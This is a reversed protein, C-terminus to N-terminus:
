DLELGGLHHIHCRHRDVSIRSISFAGHGWWRAWTGPESRPLHMLLCPGDAYIAVCSVLPQDFLVFVPRVQLFSHSCHRNPLDARSTVDARSPPFTEPDSLEGCSQPRALVQCANLSAAGLLLQARPTQDSRTTNVIFSPLLSVPRASSTRRYSNGIVFIKPLSCALSRLSFSGCM